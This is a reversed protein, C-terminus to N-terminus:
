VNIENIDNIKKLYLRCRPHYGIFYTKCILLISFFDLFFLFKFFIKILSKVNDKSPYHKVTLVLDYLRERSRALSSDGEIRSLSHYLTSSSSIMFRENMQTVNRMRRFFSFDVGYLAFHTDFLNLNHKRFKEVLNKSIILGSGISTISKSCIICDKIVPKDDVLPYYIIDNILSTIKPLELDYFTKQQNIQEVFSETLTTDDDLLIYRDGDNHATIFANYAISLPVNEIHNELEVYNFIDKLNLIVANDNDINKPGNNLIILSCNNFKYDLLSILTTSDKPEKNYLVVLIYIVHTSLSNM